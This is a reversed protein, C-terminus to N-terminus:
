QNVSEKMISILYRMAKLEVPFDYARCIETIMQIKSFYTQPSAEWKQYDKLMMEKVEKHRKSWCSHCAVVAETVKRIKTVEQTEEWATNAYDDSRGVVVESNYEEYKAKELVHSRTDRSCTICRGYVTAVDDREFLAM